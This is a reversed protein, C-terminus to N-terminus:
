KGGEKEKKKAKEAAKDSAKKISELKKAISKDDKSIKNITHVKKGTADFVVILPVKVGYKSKLTKDLDKANCKYCGFEGLAGQVNSAAALGKEFEGCAVADKDMKGEDPWYFYIVFPKELKCEATASFHEFVTAKKAEEKDSPISGSAETWGPISRQPGKPQPPQQGPRGGQGLCEDVCVALAAAFALILLLVGFRNM